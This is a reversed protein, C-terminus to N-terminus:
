LSPAHEPLPKDKRPFRVYRLELEGEANMRHGALRYALVSLDEQLAVREEQSPLEKINDTYGPWMRYMLKPIQTGEPDRSWSAGDCPGGLLL